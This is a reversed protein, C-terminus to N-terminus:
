EPQTAVKTLSVVAGVTAGIMAVVLLVRAVSAWDFDYATFDFPFVIFVRFTVYVSVLNTIMDGLSRVPPHDHFLYIVNALISLGLSLSIWPLVETFEATLFPPWGWVLLNQVVILIAANIVVAFGYGVRRGLEPLSTPRTATQMIVEVAM